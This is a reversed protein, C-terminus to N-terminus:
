TSRKKPLSVFSRTSKLVCVFFACGSVIAASMFFRVLPKPSKTESTMTHAPAGMVLVNYVSPIAMPGAAVNPYPVPVPGGPTPTNCVDPFGINMGGFQTNAFM